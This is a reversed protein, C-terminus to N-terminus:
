MLLGVRNNLGEEVGRGTSYVCFDLSGENLEGGENGGFIIALHVCEYSKPHKWCAYFFEGLETSFTKLLQLQWHIVVVVVQSRSVVM